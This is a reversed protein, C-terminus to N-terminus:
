SRLHPVPGRGLDHDYGRSLSGARDEAGLQLGAQITGVPVIGDLDNSPVVDTRDPVPITLGHTARCVADKGM